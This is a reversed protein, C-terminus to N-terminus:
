GPGAGHEATLTDRIRGAMLDLTARHPQRRNAHLRVGDRVSRPIVHLHVHFVEQFAVAGDALLLNVGECPLPGARLARAIRHATRFLHAGLEEDLEALGAAHEKPVVLLHGPTFPLIDLFALVRDDQYVISSEATGAVIDCFVCDTGQGSTM